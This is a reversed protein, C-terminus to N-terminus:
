GHLRVSQSVPRARSSVWFLFASCLIPFAPLRRRAKVACQTEGVWGDVTSVLLRSEHDGQLRFSETSHSNHSTFVGPSIAVTGLPAVRIEDDQEFPIMIMMPRANMRLLTRCSGRVSQEGGRENLTTQHAAPPREGQHRSVFVFVVGFVFSRSDEESVTACRLM